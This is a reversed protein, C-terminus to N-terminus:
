PRDPACTTRSRWTPSAASSTLRAATASTTRDATLGLPELCESHLLDWGFNPVVYHDAGGLGIGAEHAAQDGAARLGDAMRRVVQEMPMTETFALTREHLSVPALDPVPRLRAGGRQMGELEPDSASACSRLRAFGGTRSLVAASAGDGFVLGPSARWRNWTPEGFQDGATILAAVGDTAALHACALEVVGVAGNSLHRIEFSPGPSGLVRHRLYSAANWGDLGSHTAVAHLLLGVDTGRLGSRRLALRGASVAMDAGTEGDAAVAVRRQQTRQRLRPEYRGDAVAEDVAVAKPYHTGLGALYVDDYRVRRDQAAATL